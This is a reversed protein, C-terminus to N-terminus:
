RGFHEFGEQILRSLQESRPKITRMFPAPRNQLSSIYEATPEIVNGHDDIAKTIEFATLMTAITLFMVSQALFRGPCIRRGFGFGATTDRVDPNIKGDKIWRDPNFRYPDPYMEEDHLIAWANPIVTSDKPIRYGRYEDEVHIFHIVGVPGITQWRMVEHMIATCYPLSNKDTFDPLRGPGIVKDLEEQAKVQYEPFCVMALIFSLLGTFVTDTGAEYMSAATERVTDETYGVSEGDEFLRQLSNLVFSNRATGKFMGNKTVEFPITAMNEYLKRWEKAKRKFAAGPFWDPIYKLWPLSDVVFTSPNLANMFVDLAKEAIEIYPDGESKTDIGYTVSIIISGTM